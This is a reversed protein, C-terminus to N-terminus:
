NGPRPMGAMKEEPRKEAPKKMKAPERMEAGPGKSRMTEMKRCMDNWVGHAQALQGHLRQRMGNFEKLSAAVERAMKKKENRLQAMMQQAMQRREQAMQRLAGRTQERLGNVFNWRRGFSDAVSEGFRKFDSALDQMAM